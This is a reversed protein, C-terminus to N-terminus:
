SKVMCIDERIFQAMSRNKVICSVERKSDKRKGQKNLWNHSGIVLYAEDIILIKAHLPPNYILSDKLLQKLSMMMKVEDEEIYKYASDKAIIKAIEEKSALSYNTKNFGFTIRLKNGRELFTEVRNLFDAKVVITSIWPTCIEISKANDLLSLLFQYHVEDTLIGEHKEYLSFLECYRTDKITEATLISKVVNTYNSDMEIEDNFFSYIKGVKQFVTKLNKLVTNGSELIDYNGVIIVQSKARTLAVNLFNPESGIFAIGRQDRQSSVALSIIIIDKGKGQFKHVTGCETNKDNIVEELLYRQNTYPTIVGIESDLDNERISKVLNKIVDAEVQNKNNSAKYGKVDIFVLNGGLFKEENPKNKTKLLMKGNYVYDNSFIAINEECRRHEDLMLGIQKGDLVDFYKSHRDAINQASQIDLDLHKDINSLREHKEFIQPYRQKRVPQLQFVDGVILANRARFLPSVLYHPMVQGSEDVMILDFLEPLMHFKNREFSHLTTTIVPYCLCFIEWLNRIKSSTKKNYLYTSRYCSSFLPKGNKYIENLASLIEKRYKIIYAEHIQLSLYFLRARILLIGDCNCLSYRANLPVETIGIRKVLALLKEHQIQFDSISKLALEITKIELIIENKIKKSDLLGSDMEKIENEYYSKLKVTEAIENRLLDNSVQSKKRKKSTFIAVLKGVLFWEMKDEIETLQAVQDNLKRELSSIEKNNVVVKEIAIKKNKEFENTKENQLDMNKRCEELHKNHNEVVLECESYEVKNGLISVLKAITTDYYSLQHNFSELFTYLENFEIKLQDENISKNEESLSQILPQLSNSIFHDTNEKNGLKACFSYDINKLDSTNFLSIEKILEEGINNVADNNTSTVVMSFNNTGGFPSCYTGDNKLDWKENWAEILGKTKKVFTDAIIEKLITTKGTGPPGTVSQLKADGYLNMIEWQKKNVTYAPLSVMRYDIGFPYSGFHTRNMIKSTYDIPEEGLLYAGLLDSKHKKLLHNTLLLEDKFGGFNSEKSNLLSIMFFKERKTELDDKIFDIKNLITQVVVESLSDICNNDFSALSKFFEEKEKASSFYEDLLYQKEMFLDLLKEVVAYSNVKFNGLVESCSFVCLPVYKNNVRYIPYYIYFEKSRLYNKITWKLSTIDERDGDFNKEFLENLRLGIENDNHTRSDRCIIKLEKEINQRAIGMDKLKYSLIDLVLENKQDIVNNAILDIDSLKVEPFDNKKNVSTVNNLLNYNEYEIYYELIKKIDM